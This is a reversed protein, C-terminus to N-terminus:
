REALELLEPARLAPPEPYSIAAGTWRCRELLPQAAGEALAIAHAPGPCAREGHGFALHGAPDDDAVTLDLAVTEGSPTIRQTFRVPPDTRLMQAVLDAAPVPSSARLGAAVVNGILGATAAYAQILLGIRAAVQEGPGAPLLGTLRAVCGDAEANGPSGPLYAAAVAPLQAAVLDPDAAGLAGALVMGPVRRAVLAMADFPRRGAGDIIASTAERAGTRLVGPDLRRLLDEALNRRRAHDAGNSLRAVNQRLWAMTGPPASSGPDLVTHGPDALIARISAPDAVTRPLGPRPEASTDM